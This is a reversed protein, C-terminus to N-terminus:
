SIEWIKNTVKTRGDTQPCYVLSFCLHTGMNKSLTRWFKGIFITDKYSVTSRSLRHLRVIEKFFLNAVHTADSTKFCPVFHAIKSFKDAMVLISDVGRQTRPLELVFNLSIADWQQSPMSLTQYLEANQSRGKAYQCHISKEVFMKVYIRM